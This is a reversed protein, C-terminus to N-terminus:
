TECPALECSSRDEFAGGPLGWAHAYTVKGDRHIAITIEERFAKPDDRPGSSFVTHVAHHPAPSSAQETHPLVVPLETMVPWLCLRGDPGPALLTSEAHVTGRGEVDASYHLLVGRGGALPQIRLEGRFTEDEHNRGRGTLHPPSALLATLLNM